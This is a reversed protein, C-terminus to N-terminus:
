LMVTQRFLFNLKPLYTCRVFTLVVRSENLRIKPKSQATHLTTWQKTNITGAVRLSKIAYILLQVSYAAFIWGFQSKCQLSVTLYYITVFRYNWANSTTLMCSLLERLFQVLIKYISICRFYSLHKRKSFHNMYVFKSFLHCSCIFQLRDENM